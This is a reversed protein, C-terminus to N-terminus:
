ATVLRVHTRGGSVPVNPLRSSAPLELELKFEPLSNSQPRCVYVYQPFLVM